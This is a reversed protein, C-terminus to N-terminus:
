TASIRSPTHFHCRSVTLAIPLGVCFIHIVIGIVTLRLSFPGRRYASLPLVVYQMFFYVAPGYLLGAVLPHRVLFELRRSAVFFVAAATTAIVFQCVLGLLATDLGGAAARPLGILGSAIGQLLRVPRVGMGGYVIFATTIDLVGCILGAQVIVKWPKCSMNAVAESMM